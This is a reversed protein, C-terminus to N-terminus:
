CYTIILTKELFTRIQMKLISVREELLVLVSIVERCIEAGVVPTINQRDGKKFLGYVLFSKDSM